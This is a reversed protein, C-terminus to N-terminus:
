SRAYRWSDELLGDQDNHSSVETHRHFEGRLPRLSKGEIEVRYARLAAVDIAENPHVTSLVSKPPEPAEVLSPPSPKTPAVLRAVYLDDEVADTREPSPRHQLGRASGVWLRGLAPRNDILNASSTLRKPTSWGKGDFALASGVWVEGAGGPLPHHRLTLWLTGDGGIGLRPVSKNRDGLPGFPPTIGVAPALLKGGELCAVHITRNVYFASGPNKELGVNAVNGAHAYDKGWQEDGAEYAVWM